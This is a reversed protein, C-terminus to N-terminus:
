CSQSMLPWPPPIREVTHWELELTNVTMNYKWLVVVISPWCRINLCFKSLYLKTKRKNSFNFEYLQLLLINFVDTANSVSYTSHHHRGPTRTVRYTLLQPRYLHHRNLSTLLVFLRLATFVPLRQLRWSHLSRRITPQWPSTTMLSTTVQTSGDWLQRGTAATRLAVRWRSSTM